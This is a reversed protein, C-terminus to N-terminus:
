KATIQLVDGQPGDTLIYISGDPASRVDRIREGIESFMATEKVIEGDEVDLHRVENDVLAGAFLDGQWEPFMNGEYIMLGSPGISPTWVHTPQTMGEYETFPSVYAGNYDMGYTVAPWGYNAGPTLVNIEDGGRPGHEHQYVTGDSAVALGQPNRHGYTWVYPANAIPNDAAPTGDKNLRITKGLHSATDQAAERFDFGDGTTLILTGDPLWALRGGYHMPAYKKPAASYIVQNDELTNGTLRARVITTGNANMDGASFSLYLLQNNEFDPDPLADFLGGQGAFLVEPVNAIPESLTGDASIRRLQGSLETVLRDGNPLFSISWPFDLDEAVTNITYEAANSSAVSCSLLLALATGPLNFSRRM